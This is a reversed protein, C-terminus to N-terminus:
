QISFARSVATEAMVAAPSHYREAMAREAPTLIQAQM